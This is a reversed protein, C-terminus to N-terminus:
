LQNGKPNVQFDLEGDSARRTLVPGAIQVTDPEDTDQEAYRGSTYLWFLFLLGLFVCLLILLIKKM